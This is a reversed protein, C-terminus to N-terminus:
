TSGPGIMALLALANSTRQMADNVKKKLVKAAAKEGGTFGLACTNEDTLAASVWTKVNDMQMWDGALKGETIVMTDLAKQLVMVCDGMTPVCDRVASAESPTLGSNSTLRTVLTLASQATDVSVSVSARALHVTSNQITSIYPSLSSVCVQPYTTKACMRDLFNSNSARLRAADTKGCLVATLFFTFITTISVVKLVNM